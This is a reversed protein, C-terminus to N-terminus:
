KWPSDREPREEGEHEVDLVEEVRDLLERLEVVREERGGGRQVLDDVHEVLLRVDDVPGAGRRERVDLAVDAELVDAEAVAAPGLDQVPDVEVHGAPM